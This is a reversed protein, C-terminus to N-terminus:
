SPILCNNMDKKNAKSCITLITRLIQLDIHSFLQSCIELLINWSSKRGDQGRGESTFGSVTLKWRKWSKGISILYLDYPTVCLLFLDTKKATCLIRESQQSGFRAWWGLPWTVCKPNLFYKKKLKLELPFKLFIDIRKQISADNVQCSLMPMPIMIRTYKVYDVNRIKQYIELVPVLIFINQNRMSEEQQLFNVGRVFSLSDLDQAQKLANLHFIILLPM